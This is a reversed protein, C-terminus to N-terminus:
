PSETEPFILKNYYGFHVVCLNCDCWDSADQVFPKLTYRALRWRRFETQEHAELWNYVDEIKAYTLKKGYCDEKVPEDNWDLYFDFDIEQKFLEVFDSPMKSLRLDAIISCVETEYKNVVFIRSEYGM